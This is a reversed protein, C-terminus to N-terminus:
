QSKVSESVTIMTGNKDRTVNEVMLNVDESVHSINQSHRQNM